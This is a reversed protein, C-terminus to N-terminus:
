DQMYGFAQDDKPINGVRDGYIKRMNKSFVNNMPSNVIKPLDEAEVDVVDAVQEQTYLAQAKGKDPPTMALLQLHLHYSQESNKL